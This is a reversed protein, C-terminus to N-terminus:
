LIVVRQVEPEGPAAGRGRVAVTALPAGDAANRVRWVHSTFSALVAARGPEVRAYRRERGTFDLWHVEVAAGRSNVFQVVRPTKSPLSRQAAGGGGLGEEAASPAPAGHSGALPGAEAALLAQLQAHFRGAAGGDGGAAAAAAAAADVGGRAILRSVERLLAASPQAAADSEGEGRREEADADADANADATAGTSASSASGASDTLAAATGDVVFARLLLRASDLMARTAPTSSARFFEVVADATWGSADAEAAASDSAPKAGSGAAGGAEEEEDDDEDDDDDDDFHLKKKALAAAAAAADADAGGAAAADRTAASPVEMKLSVHPSGFYLRVEPLPGVMHQPCVQACIVLPTLFFQPACASAPKCCSTPMRAARAKATRSGPECSIALFRVGHRALRAAAGHVAAAAADCAAGCRADYFLVLWDGGATLVANFSLPDAVQAFVSSQAPLAGGSATDGATGFAAGSSTLWAPREEYM